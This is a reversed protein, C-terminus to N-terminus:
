VNECDFEPLEPFPPAIEKDVIVPSIESESEEEKLETV